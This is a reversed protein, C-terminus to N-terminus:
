TRAQNRVAGALAATAEAVTGEIPFLASIGLVMGRISAPLDNGFFSAWASTHIPVDTDRILVPFGTAEVVQSFGSVAPVTVWIGPGTVVGAALAQVPDIWDAGATEFEAGPEAGVLSLNLISPLGYGAIEAANSQVSGRDGHLEQTLFAGDFHGDALLAPAVGGAAGDSGAVCYALRHELVNLLALEELLDATAVVGDVDSVSLAEIVRDLLERRGVREGSRPDVRQNCRLLVLQGDAPVADPHRRRSALRDAIADPTRVRADVIRTWSSTHLHYARMTPLRVTPTGWM